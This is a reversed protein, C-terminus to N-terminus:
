QGAPRADLAGARGELVPRLARWVTEAALRAGEATPHIGDGQNLAPVGAVGELLFPVLEVGTAAALEPYIARFAATYGAGLNPPAEMQVLLIRAEPRARRVREIIARINSRVESVPIGRLGDNAGTELVLVDVPERLLWDIRRLAGASTEGSSGANVVEFPLGASDIKGAVVAPYAESPDLGLGATLSTGVFLVRGPDASAGERARAAGAVKGPAAENRQSADAVAAGGPAGEAGGGGCAALAALLASLLVARSVPPLPRGVIM